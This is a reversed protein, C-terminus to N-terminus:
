KKPRWVGRGGCSDDSEISDYSDYSDEYSYASSDYPSSIPLVDATPDIHVFM